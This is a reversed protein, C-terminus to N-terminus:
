SACLKLLDLFPVYSPRANCSVVLSGSGVLSSSSKRVASKIQWPVSSLPVSSRARLCRRSSPVKRTRVLTASPTRTPTTRYLIVLLTLPLNVYAASNSKRQPGRVHVLHGFRLPRRRYLRFFRRHVLFPRLQSTSSGQILAVYRIRLSGQMISCTWTLLSDLGTIRSPSM